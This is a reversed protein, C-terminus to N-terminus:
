RALPGGRDADQPTKRGHFFLKLEQRGGGVDSKLILRGLNLSQRRDHVFGVVLAVRELLVRRSRLAAGWGIGWLLVGVGASLRRKGSRVNGQCRRRGNRRITARM